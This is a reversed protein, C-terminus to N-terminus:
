GIKADVLYLHSQTAFVTPSADSTRFILNWVGVVFKGEDKSRHLMLNSNFLSFPASNM